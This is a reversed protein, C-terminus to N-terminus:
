IKKAVPPKDKKDKKDKKNDKKDKKNDKKDKKDKKDEKKNDKKDTKDKKDEKKNDKKDKKDEKKNDKKNDKKNKKKEIDEKKKDEKNTEAKNDTPKKSDKNKKKTSTAKIFDLLAESTRHNQFPTTKQETDNMMITPFGSIANFKPEFFQRDKNVMDMMMNREIELVEIDKNNRTQEVMKNWEPRMMECYGCGNMRVLIIVNNKKINEMAGANIKKLGDPNSVNYLM